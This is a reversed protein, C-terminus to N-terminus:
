GHFFGLAQEPFDTCLMVDSNLITSMKKLREWEKEFPRKHLEPSVLCVQKRQLLHFKITNEDIWDSNFCDIWVGKCKEYLIPLTEIESQRTFVNLGENIYGIMDPVSMDFVFYNQINYKELTTSLIKQLGDAKINLALPSKQGHNVYSDFVSDVLISRINAPDHSIVLQEDRDRIDTETGFNYKFSRDFAPISNKEETSKWYGRHSLIIM